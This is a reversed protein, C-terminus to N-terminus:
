GVALTERRKNLEEAARGENREEIRSNMISNETERERECVCENSIIREKKERKREKQRVRETIRKISLKIQDTKRDKRIKAHGHRVM